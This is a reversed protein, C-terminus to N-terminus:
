PTEQLIGEVENKYGNCYHWFAKLVIVLEVNEAVEGYEMM